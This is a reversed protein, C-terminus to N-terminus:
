TPVILTYRKCLLTREGEQKRASNFNDSIVQYLLTGPTGGTPRPNYLTIVGMFEPWVIARDDVCTIEVEEGDNLGILVATLGSGNEIPIESVMQTARVSKVIATISSTLGETGWSITAAVPRATYTNASQAPPWAM